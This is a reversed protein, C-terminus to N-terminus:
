REALKYKSLFYNCISSGLTRDGQGPICGNRIHSTIGVLLVGAWDWGCFESRTIFAPTLSPALPANAIGWARTPGSRSQPPESLQSHARPIERNLSRGQVRRFIILAPTGNFWLAKCHVKSCHVWCSQPTPSMVREHIESMLFAHFLSTTTSRGQVIM